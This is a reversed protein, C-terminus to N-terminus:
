VLAVYCNRGPVCSKREVFGDDPGLVAQTKNCWCHGDGMQGDDVAPNMTGTVYMGKSRLYRCASQEGGLNGAPQGDLNTGM